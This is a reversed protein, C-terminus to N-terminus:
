QHSVMCQRVYRVLSISARMLFDAGLEGRVSEGQAVRGVSGFLWRELLMVPQFELTMQCIQCVLNEAGIITNQIAAALTANRLLQRCSFLSLETM